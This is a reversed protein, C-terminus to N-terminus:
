PLQWLSTQLLLMSISCRITYEIAIQRIEFKNTFSAPGNLIKRRKLFHAPIICSSVPEANIIGSLNTACSREQIQHKEMQTLKKKVVKQISDGSHDKFNATGNASLPTAQKISNILFLCTYISQIRQPPIQSGRGDPNQIPQWLSTSRIFSNTSIM